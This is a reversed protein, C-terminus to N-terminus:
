WTHHGGDVVIDSGTCYSSADSALWAIVGRMEDPTAIRGLPNESSWQPLFSDILPQLMETHIFGPSLTNVRIRKPGLECAMTRGMQLLASKSTSYPLSELGRLSVTGAISALLIISGPLGFRVMQRGVAQATYLVGNTNVNLGKQFEDAPYELCSKGVLAIGAAAVGVDLRGEKDGIKQAVEWMAKQDTVDQSIYELRGGTGLRVVYDHVAKWEEGPETPLDICYVARAGAELLVLAAELGLGRNAGTVLGVRDTLKFQDWLQERPTISSDARTALAAAVGIPAPTSTSM